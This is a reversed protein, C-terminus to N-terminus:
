NSIIEYDEFPDGKKAIILFGLIYSIILTTIISLFILLIKTKTNLTNKIKNVQENTSYEIVDMFSISFLTMLLCMLIM